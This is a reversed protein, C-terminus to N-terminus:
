ANHQFADRAMKNRARQWDNIGSPCQLQTECRDEKSCHCCEITTGSSIVVSTKVCGVKVAQRSNLVGKQIAMAVIRCKSPSTSLDVDAQRKAVRPKPKVEEDIEMPVEPVVPASRKQAFHAAAEQPSIATKSLACMPHVVREVPRASVLMADQAKLNSQEFLVASSAGVSQVRRQQGLKWEQWCDYKDFLVM